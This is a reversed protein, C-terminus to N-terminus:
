RRRASSVAASVAVSVSRSTMSSRQSSAESASSAEPRRPAEAVFPWLEIAYGRALPHAAALAIAQGRDLALVVDIALTMGDVQNFPSDARLTGPDRLRLTAVAEIGGLSSGMVYIGRADLDRRWAEVADVLERDTGLAASARGLQALLLYPTGADPGPPAGSASRLALDLDACEIVNIRSFLDDELLTPEGLLTRSDRVRVTVASEAGALERGFLHPDAGTM